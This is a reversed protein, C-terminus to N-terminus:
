VVYTCEVCLLNFFAPHLCAVGVQLASLPENLAVPMSIRSLDKGTPVGYTLLIYLTVCWVYLCIYVGWECM